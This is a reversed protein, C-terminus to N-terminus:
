SVPTVPRPSRSAPRLPRNQGPATRSGPSAPEYGKSSGPVGSGPNPPQTIPQNPIRPGVVDPGPRTEPKPVFQGTRAHRPQAM